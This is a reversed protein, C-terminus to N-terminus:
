LPVFSSLHTCRASSTLQTYRARIFFYVWNIDGCSENKLRLCSTDPASSPYSNGSSEKPWAVVHYCHSQWLGWQRLAHWGPVLCHGGCWSCPATLMWKLCQRGDHPRSVGRAYKRHASPGGRPFAGVVCWCSRPNWFWSLSYHSLVSGEHMGVGVDFRRKVACQKVCSYMGQIVRVAWEEVSFSRVAWCLVNRFVRDFVKDFNFFVIYKEWLQRVIFIVYTASRGSVFGFQMEVINMLKCIYDLLNMVQDSLKLICYNARNLAEVWSARNLIFSEELDALIEGSSLVAEALQRALGVGEEGAAKLMEAIIGSPGEAKGCLAKCILTASVSPPSWCNSTNSM